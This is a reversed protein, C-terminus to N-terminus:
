RLYVETISPRFHGLEQSVIALADRYDQGNSQLEFMRQQAYSHRMGHAGESWGLTQKADSSFRNSFNKGGIVDFHKEHHIKRDTVHVPEPLRRAELERATEQSFRVERVLGGKGRVSYQEWNERGRFRDESWQRHSSVPQEDLRRLTLLEEARLGAESALQTSFAMRTSQESQILEIQDRSYARSHEVDPVRSTHRDLVISADKHTSRVHLELARRENNLQKQRIDDARAALYESAQAISMDRLREDHNAQLWTAVGKFISEYQRATGVSHVRGDDRHQHRPQGLALLPKIAKAAQREPAPMRRPM